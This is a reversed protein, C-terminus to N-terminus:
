VAASLGPGVGNYFRGNWSVGKADIYEGKGHMRNAKWEGQCVCSNLIWNVGHESGFGLPPLLGPVYCWQAM